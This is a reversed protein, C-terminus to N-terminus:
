ECKKPQHSSWMRKM